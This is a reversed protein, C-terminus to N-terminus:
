ATNEASAGSGGKLFQFIFLATVVLMMLFAILTLAMGPGYEVEDYADDIEEFCDDFVGFGIVGFLISAIAAVIGAISAIKNAKEMAALAGVVSTIIACIFAIGVMVATTNGSDECADCVDGVCGDEDYSTVTGDYYAATLGFYITEGVIDASVWNTSEITDGEDSAAITGILYFLASVMSLVTVVIAVINAM